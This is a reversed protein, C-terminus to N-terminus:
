STVAATRHRIIQLWSMLSGSRQQLRECCGAGFSELSLGPTHQEGQRRDEQLSAQTGQTAAAPLGQQLLACDQLRCCASLQM